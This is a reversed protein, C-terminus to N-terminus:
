SLIRLNLKLIFLMDPSHKDVSKKMSFAGSYELFSRTRSGAMGLLTVPGRISNTDSRMREHTVPKYDSLSIPSFHLIAKYGM